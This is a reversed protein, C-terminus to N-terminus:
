DQWNKVKGEKDTYNGTFKCDYEFTEKKKEEEIKKKISELKDNLVTINIKEEEKIKENYNNVMEIFEKHQYDHEYKSDILELTLDIRDQVSMKKFQHNKFLKFHNEYDKWEFRIDHHLNHRIWWQNVIDKDDMTFIKDILSAVMWAQTFERDAEFIAFCEGQIKRILRNLGEYRCSFEDKYRCLAYSVFETNLFIELIAHKSRNKLLNIISCMDSITEYSKLFDSNIEIKLPNNKEPRHSDFAVSILNEGSLYDNALSSGTLWFAGNSENKLFEYWINESLKKLKNNCNDIHDSLKYIRNVGHAIKTYREENSLGM